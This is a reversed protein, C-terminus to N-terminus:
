FSPHLSEKYAIILGILPLSITVDFCFQGDRETEYSLGTPLLFRPM